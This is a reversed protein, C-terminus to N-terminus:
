QFIKNKLGEFTDRIHSRLQRKAQVFAGEKIQELIVRHEGLSYEGTGPISLCQYRALAPYISHYFHVVWHNRSAEVLKLHFDLFAKIYTLMEEQNNHSPMRLRSALALISEADPM